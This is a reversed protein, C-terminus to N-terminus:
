ALGAVVQSGLFDLSSLTRLCAQAVEVGKLAYSQRYLESEAVADHLPTLVASFVPTETQLQVRMLADVVTNAVNAHRYAGSDIVLASAVIATFRGTKALLQAHLPIEYAGPVEFVGVNAAAIGHIAVEAVFAQRFAEVVDRHHSSQILAIRHPRAFRIRAADTPASDGPPDSETQNM